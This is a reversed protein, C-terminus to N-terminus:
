GQFLGQLMKKMVQPTIRPNSITDDKLFETFGPIVEEVIAKRMRKRMEPDPVKWLKQATYTKHFNSEFKQLPTRRSFCHTTPNHLCRLVPAWSLRIYTNIYDYIKGPLEPMPFGPFQQLLYHFNNIVLLFIRSEDLISEPTTTTFKGELSHFMEITLNTLHTAYENAPVFEGRLFANHLIRNVSGHNDWLVKTYSVFSRTIPHIDSSRPTGFRSSMVGAKAEEITNWTAQDLKAM